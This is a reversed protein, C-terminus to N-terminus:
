AKSKSFLNTLVEVSDYPNDVVESIMNVNHKKACDVIIGLDKNYLAPGEHSDTYLGKRSPNSHMHMTEVGGSEIVSCIAKTLDFDFVAACVQMHGIDLCMKLGKQALKEMEEPMFLLYGPRPPLNELCLNVGMESLAKTLVLANEVMTEFCKVYRPSSLYEKTCFKPFGPLAYQELGCHQVQEMRKEGDTWVLGEIAYGPHLVINKAGLSAAYRGDTLIERKSWEWANACGLNPFYERRPTLSHVSAIRGAILPLARGIYEPTSYYSLEFVCEPFDTAIIKLEEITKVGVLSLGISM